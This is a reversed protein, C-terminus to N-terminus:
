KLNTSLKIFYKCDKVGSEVDYDEGFYQMMRKCKIQGESRTNTDNPRINTRFTFMFHEMSRNKELINVYRMLYLFWLKLLRKMEVRLHPLQVSNAEINIRIGKSEINQLALALELSSYIKEVPFYRYFTTINICKLHKKSLIQMMINEYQEDTVVVRTEHILHISEM